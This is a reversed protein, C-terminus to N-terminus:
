TWQQRRKFHGEAKLKVAAQRAPPARVPGIGGAGENGTGEDKSGRM